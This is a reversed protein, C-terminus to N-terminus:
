LQTYCGTTGTGDLDRCSLGAPCLGLQCRLICSGGFGGCFAQRFGPVTPCLAGSTCNGALSAPVCGGIDCQYGPYCDSTQQCAVYGIVECDRSCTQSGWGFAAPDCEENGNVVGDGCVPRVCSGLQCVNQGPCDFDTRCSCGGRGDCYGMDCRTTSGANSSGCRGGSCSAVVCPNSRDPNPCDSATRCEVCSGDACYGSQGGLRCTGANDARAQCRNSSCEWRNCPEAEGCDSATRCQVCSGDACYGSGFSGSCTGSSLPRSVCSGAMCEVEHCAEPRDCDNAKGCELCMGAGGCAPTSAPCPMQVLQTGDENCILATSADACEAAGPVCQDCAGAQADCLGPQCTELQELATQAANCQMLVDGDCVRQGPSCAADTCDGAVANCLSETACTKAPQYGDGAESCQLLEAGECQFEDDTGRLCSPCMGLELGAQCHRASACTVMNAVVGQEDCTYMIGSGDCVRQGGSGQCIEAVAICTLAGNGDVSCVEGEACPGAANWTGGSCIDIRRGGGPSCRMAGESPCTQAGGSAAGEKGQGPAGPGPDAMNPLQANQVPTKREGSPGSPPVGPQTSTAPDTTVQTTILTGGDVVVNPVKECGATIVAMVLAAMVVVTTSIRARRGCWSPRVSRVSGCHAGRDGACSNM